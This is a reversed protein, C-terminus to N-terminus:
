GPGGSCREAADVRRTPRVARPHPGDRGAARGPGTRARRRGPLESSRPPWGCCAAWCRSTRRPAPRSAWRRSTWRCSRTSRGGLQGDPPNTLAYTPHGFRRAQVAAETTRGVQGSFSVGIVASRKPLFRSRYRALDLAHVPHPVVPTHRQFALAAAQGAFASDGCGTLWLHSIDARGPNPWRRVHGDADDVVDSVVDPIMAIERRMVDIAYADGDHHPGASRGVPPAPTSGCPAGRPAAPGRLGDGDHDLLRLSGPPASRPAPRPWASRSPMSPRWGAALGAAVGGCFADGAGTTDVPPIALAPVHVIGAALVYAGDAGAKVVARRVGARALARLGGEAHPRRHAGAARGPEARLRRRRRGPRAGPRRVAAWDEHTDLTILAEPALRRVEAVVAEANALPMAAVHVVPRGAVAPTLDAPQPAVEASRGAPTRYLWHRRGDAEYVVWNRVTPGPVDVVHRRTRARRRLREFAEAPFDEGQRTVLAVPAGCAFM